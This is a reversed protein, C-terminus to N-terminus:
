SVTTSTIVAASHIQSSAEPRSSSSTLVAWSSVTMGRRCGATTMTTLPGWVPCTLVSVSVSVSVSGSYPEALSPPVWCPPSFPAGSLGGQSASRRDSAKVQPCRAGQSECFMNKNGRALFNRRCLRRNREIYRRSRRHRDTVSALLCDCRSLCTSSLFQYYLLCSGDGTYFLGDSGYM